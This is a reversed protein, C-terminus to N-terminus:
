VLHAEHPNVGPSLEHSIVLLATTLWAFTTSDCDGFIVKTGTLPANNYPARHHVTVHAAMGHGDISHRGYVELYFKFTAGLGDYAQNVAIDKSAAAGEARVRNGPLTESRGGDFITRRLATAAAPVPPKAGQAQATRKTRAKADIDLTRLADKRQQPTGNCSIAHLIHPPLLCCASHRHDRMSNGRSRDDGRGPRSPSEPPSKGRRRRSITHLM